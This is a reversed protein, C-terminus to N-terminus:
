SDHLEGERRGRWPNGTLLLVNRDPVLCQEGNSTTSRFGIEIRRWSPTKPLRGARPGRGDGIDAPARGHAVPRVLNPRTSRGPVPRRQRRSGGPARMRRCHHLYRRGPLHHPRHRHDPNDAWRNGISSRGVFSQSRIRGHGGEYSPVATFGDAALSREFETAMASM